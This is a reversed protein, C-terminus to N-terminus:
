YIKTNTCLWNLVYVINFCWIEMYFVSSVAADDDAAVNFGRKIYEMFLHVAFFFLM